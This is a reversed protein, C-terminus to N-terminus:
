KTLKRSSQASRSTRASRRPSLQSEKAERGDEVWRGVREDDHVSRAIIRGDGM